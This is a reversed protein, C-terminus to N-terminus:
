TFLTFFYPSIIPHSLSSIEELFNSIGFSYKMCLHACYLVSVNHVYSFCFSNLLPSLFVCMFQVFFTKIVWCVLITHDNMVGFMRSHSTLDCEQKPLM